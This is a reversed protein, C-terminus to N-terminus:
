SRFSRAAKIRYRKMNSRQCVDYVHLRPRVRTEKGRDSRSKMRILIDSVEEDRSRAASKVEAGSRKGRREALFQRMESASLWPLVRSDSGFGAFRGM